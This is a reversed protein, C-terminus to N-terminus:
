DHETPLATGVHGAPTYATCDWPEEEAEAAVANGAPVHGLAAAARRSKAAAVATDPRSPPAIDAMSKGSWVRTATESSRAEGAAAHANPIPASACQEAPRPRDQQQGTIPVSAEVLLLGADEQFAVPGSSGSCAGSNPVCRSVHPCQAAHALRVASAVGAMCRVAGRRASPCGALSGLAAMRSTSFLAYRLAHRRRRRPLRRWPLRRWLRLRLPWSPRRNRSRAPHHTSTRSLCARREVTGHRAHFRSLRRRVQRTHPATALCIPIRFRGPAGLRLPQTSRLALGLQRCRRNWRSHSRWHMQLHARRRPRCSQRLTISRLLRVGRPLRPHVRRTSPAEGGPRVRVSAM